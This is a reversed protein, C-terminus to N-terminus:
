KNDRFVWRQQIQYSIIFLISDVIIKIIVAGGACSAYILEVLKASLLMQIVCLIYYKIITNKTDTSKFVINKNVSYNFLSSLIRASVTAILISKSVGGIHKLVSMFISFLGIDIFFSLLSSFMYMIFSKLIINYIALSDKIPRFHTESNNDIYITQIDVEKIDIKKLACEILMSTEYEFREGFLEMFYPIINKPFGRLGTQTDKLKQGYLLRFVLCTMKNGFSSKIPVDKGDFNRSGMILSNPTTELLKAIKEVDDVSHQGDSDVAIVGSYDDIDKLNLFYNFGNKMARGKGLNIAHTLVKCGDIEEIKDFIYKKDERSGDNIVLINNFGKKKLNNIYIILDENPNLTPIMIYVNKM